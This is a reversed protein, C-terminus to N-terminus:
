VQSGAIIYSLTVPVGPNWLGRRCVLVVCCELEPGLSKTNRREIPLIRAVAWMEEAAVNCRRTISLWQGHGRKVSDERDLSYPTEKFGSSDAYCEPCVIGLFSGLNWTSNVCALECHELRSAAPQDSLVKGFGLIFTEVPSSQCIEVQISGQSWKIMLSYSQSPGISSSLAEAECDYLIM